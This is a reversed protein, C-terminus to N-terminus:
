PADSDADPEGKAEDLLRQCILFGALKDDDDEDNDDDDDYASDNLWGITKRAMAVPIDIHDATCCQVAIDLAITPEGGYFSNIVVDSWIDDGADSLMRAYQHALVENEAMGEPKNVM